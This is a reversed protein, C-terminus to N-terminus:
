YCGYEDSNRIGLARIDLTRYGVEAKQRKDSGAVILWCGVVPLQLM